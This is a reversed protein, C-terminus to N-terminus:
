ENKGQETGAGEGGAEEVPIGKMRKYQNELETMDRRASNLVLQVSTSIEKFEAVTAGERRVKRNQLDYFKMNAECLRMFTKRSQYFDAKLKLAEEDEAPVEIDAMNLLASQEMHIEYRRIIDDYNKKQFPQFKKVRAIGEANTKGFEMVVEMFFRDVVNYLADRYEM